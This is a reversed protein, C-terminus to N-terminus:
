ISVARTRWGARFRMEGWEAINRMEYPTSDGYGPRAMCILRTGLTILDEFLEHDKISAILGHQILVPFGSEDGYEAYALFNEDKYRTIRRM